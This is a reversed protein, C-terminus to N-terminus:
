GLCMSMNSGLQRMHEIYPGVYYKALLQEERVKGDAVYM